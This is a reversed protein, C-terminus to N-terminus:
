VISKREAQPDIVMVALQQKFALALDMELKGDVLQALAEIDPYAGAHRESGVLFGDAVAGVLMGAELPLRAAMALEGVDLDVDRWLRAAGAIGEDVPHDATGDRLVENGGDVLAHLIRQLAARLDSSCVDSSWDSSRM